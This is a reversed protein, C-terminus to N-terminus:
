VGAPKCDFDGFRAHWGTLGTTLAPLAAAFFVPLPSFKYLTHLLPGILDASAVAALAGGIEAAIRFLFQLLLQLIQLPESLLDLHPETFAQWYAGYLCRAKRPAAPLCPFRENVVLQHAHETKAM